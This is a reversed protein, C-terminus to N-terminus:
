GTPRPVRLVLIAVDDGNRSRQGLAADKTLEVVEQATSDDPARGLLEILRDEGGADRWADTVGDTYLVLVDGPEMTATGVDLEPDDFVGLLTGRGGVPEVAGGHRRLLPPPHGARGMRVTPTEGTEIVGIAATCFRLDGTDTRRLARNVTELVHRPDDDEMAAARATHRTVGTLTAAVAGKGCVDAIMV